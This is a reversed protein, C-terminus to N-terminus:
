QVTSLGLFMQVSTSPQLGRATKKNVFLMYPGPPAVNGSPPAKVRLTNGSGRRFALQITRQNNDLVHTTAPLSSLVVSKVRAADGTRVTFRRGWSIGSQVGAIRPRRGRFLYPPSYVEFSADRENNAFGPNDHNYGYANSIPSHGGVLVRADPLLVATNHYTRDRPDVPGPTWRRTAPNFLEIQHVARETGPDIVEDKDGGSFAAVSGDPLTVAQSFWRAHNLPSTRSNTVHGSRDVTTLNSVNQAVLSGPSPGSVGGATLVTASRYPPKITLMADLAGSRVGSPAPGAVEWRNTRLNYFRQLAWQTEDPSQGFPGWNQGNGDYFVKGNPMLWLRPYLPLSSNIGVDEEHETWHGTAPDFTETPRVNFLETNKVLKTVGGAAFVKGGPLRVTSMYWRGYHMSEAQTFKRTRPDFIRANRLGELEIPGLGLGGPIPVTSGPTLPNVDPPLGPVQQAPAPAAPLAVLALASAALAGRALRTRWALPVVRRWGGRRGPDGAWSSHSGRRRSGAGQLSCM